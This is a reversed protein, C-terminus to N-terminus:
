HNTHRNHFIISVVAGYQAVINTLFVSSQEICLFYVLFM